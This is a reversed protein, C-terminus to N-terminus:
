VVDSRPISQVGSRDMAGDLVYAADCRNRDEASKMVMITTDLKQYLCPGRSFPWAPIGPSFLHVKGRAIRDELPYSHRCFRRLHRCSPRGTAGRTGDFGERITGM